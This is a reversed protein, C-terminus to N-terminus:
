KFVSTILQLSGGIIGAGFSDSGLPNEWSQQELSNYVVPDFLSKHTFANNTIVLYRRVRSIGFSPYGSIRSTGLFLRYDNNNTDIRILRYDKSAIVPISDIILTKTTSKNTLSPTQLSQSYGSSIYIFLVTYFLVKFNRM